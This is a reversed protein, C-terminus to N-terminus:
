WHPPTTTPCVPQHPSTTLSPSKIKYSYRRSMTPKGSNWTDQVVNDPGRRLRKGQGLRVWCVIWRVVDSRITVTGLPPRRRRSPCRGINKENKAMTTELWALLMRFAAAPRSSSRSWGRPPQRLTRRRSKHETLRSARLSLQTGLWCRGTDM